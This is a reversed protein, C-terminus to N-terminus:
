RLCSRLSGSLEVDPCPQSTLSSRANVWIWELAPIVPVAVVMGLNTIHMPSKFGPRRARVFARVWKLSENRYPSVHFM